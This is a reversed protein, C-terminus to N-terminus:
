ISNTVKSIEDGGAAIHLATAGNKAKIFPDAGCELLKSTAAMACDPVSSVDVVVIVFFLRIM